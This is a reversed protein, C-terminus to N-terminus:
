SRVQIKVICNFLGDTCGDKSKNKTTKMAYSNLDYVHVSVPQQGTDM